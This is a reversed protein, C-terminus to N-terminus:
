RDPREINERVALRINVILEGVVEAGKELATTLAM